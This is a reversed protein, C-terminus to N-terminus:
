REPVGYIGIDFFMQHDMGPLCKKPNRHFGENKGENEGHDFLAVPFFLLPYIEF